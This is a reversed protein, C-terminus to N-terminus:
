KVNTKEKSADASFIEEAPICFIGALKLLIDSPIRMKGAQYRELTKVSCGLQKALEKETYGHELRLTKIRNDM